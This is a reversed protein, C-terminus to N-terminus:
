EESLYSESAAEELARTDNYKSPCKMLIHDAMFVEGELKGQVVLQEADEFSAPKPNRYHVLREQQQEDEMYFTFLNSAPDYRAAEPRVWHGVVHAHVTTAEAEEFTMYGGVQDGFSLVLLLGFGAMAVLAVVTKVRM